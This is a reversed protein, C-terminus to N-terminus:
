KAVAPPWAWRGVRPTAAMPRCANYNRWPVPPFWCIRRARRIVSVGPLMECRWGIHLRDGGYPDIGDVRALLVGTLLPRADDHSAARVVQRVAEGM